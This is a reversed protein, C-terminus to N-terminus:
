KYAKREEFDALMKGLKSLYVVNSAEQPNMDEMDTAGPTFGASTKRELKPSVVQVQYGKWNFDHLGRIHEKVKSVSNENIRQHEKVYHVIKKSQGNATKITKDRDKFYQKTMNNPVGFSLRDGNHKVIVNWREDRKVWWELMTCFMAKYLQKTKEVDNDLTGYLLPAAGWQRRKIVSAQGNAHKSAVSKSPIVNTIDRLEDCMEVRGSHRNVTMYMHLWVLKGRWEYAMGFLYPTGTKYAVNWPLKKHKIAFMFKAPMKDDEEKAYAKYGLSVCMIAPLVKVDEVKYDGEHYPDPMVWPNPVYAGLKKLGIISDKDLWSESQLTPFKYSEFTSEIGDLLESFNARDEKHSTYKRKPKPAPDSPQEEVAPIPKAFWKALLNQVWTKIQEIM